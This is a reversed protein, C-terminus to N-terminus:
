RSEIERYLKRAMPFLINNELHIHKHLDKEFEELVAYAVRYTQCGDSPCSYGSTLESIQRFREGEHAHEDEMMTVPNDIHGFHPKSLPFNKEKANQMANIYPFLILEEKKMHAALDGASEEFLRKVKHLEPHRDGHVRSLKELYTKLVPITAEVYNHHTTVIYEILESPAMSQYSVEDPSSLEVQLQSLLENIDVSKATCAEELPIGGNCCFDIGYNTFIKATKFNEAVIKSVKKSKLEEMEILNKPDM